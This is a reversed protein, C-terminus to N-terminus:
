RLPINMQCIQGELDEFFALNGGLAQFEKSRKQIGFVERISPDTPLPPLKTPPVLAFANQIRIDLQNNTLQIQVQIQASETYKVMNLLLEQFTLLVQNAYPPEVISQLKQQTINSIFVVPIKSNVAHNCFDKLNYILNKLTYQNADYTSLFSQIVLLANETQEQLKKNLSQQKRPLLMPNAQQISLSQITELSPTLNGSFYAVVNKRFARNNRAYYLRLYQSWLIIFLGTIGVVLTIM